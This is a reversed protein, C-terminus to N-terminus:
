ENPPSLNSDNQYLDHIHVLVKDARNQLLHNIHDVGLKVNEQLFPKEFTQYLRGLKYIDQTIAISTYQGAEQWSPPRRPLSHTTTPVQDGSTERWGAKGHASDQEGAIQWSRPM